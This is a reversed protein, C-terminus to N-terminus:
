SGDGVLCGPGIIAMDPLLQKLDLGVAFEFFYSQAYRIRTIPTM